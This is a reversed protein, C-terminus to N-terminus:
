TSKYRDVDLKNESRDILLTASACGTVNIVTTMMDLLRDVSAVLLVGEIPLNLANLVMGLFLLVGGPIGAGGISALTCMLLITIYDGPSFVVGMMQAFFVAASAQYIAGGDMNLAASLPLIFRSSERSIGMKNESVEMLPVLTAKSSSTAFAILQPGLIKRYFPIPSLRAGFTIIIGFVMYQVLCGIFVALVLKGLAVLVSIGDVGVMASIYGFVGFPALKMIIKIVEFFLLASQHIIKILLESKDRNANLIFGIFMAFVIIQLIHGNSLSEFINGPILSLIIDFGRIDNIKPLQTSGKFEELLSRSLGVGPELLQTVVIGIVVAIVSTTIFVIIAKFSVRYLSSSSDMSTIGYLITFFIMPVTVMRILNLFVSGVYGLPKASPGLVFGVIIGLCMAILVFQWQSGKSLKVM